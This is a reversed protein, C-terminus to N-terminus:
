KNFITKEFDKLYMWYIINEYNIRGEFDDGGYWICKDYLFIGDPKNKNKCVTIIERGTEPHEKNWEHWKNITRAAYNLLSIAAYTAFEDINELDYENNYSSQCISKVQKLFETDKIDEKTFM